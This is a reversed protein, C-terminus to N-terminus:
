TFAPPWTISRRGPKEPRYFRGFCGRLMPSSSQTGGGLADLLLEFLPAYPRMVGVENLEEAIGPALDTQGRRRLLM